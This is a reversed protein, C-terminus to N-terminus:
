SFFAKAMDSIQKQRAIRPDIKPITNIPASVIPEEVKKSSTDEVDNAFLNNMKKLTAESPDKYFVIKAFRNKDNKPGGTKKTSELTPINIPKSPIVAKLPEQVEKKSVDVAKAKDDIKNSEPLVEGPKTKSPEVKSPEDDVETIAQNIKVKKAIKSARAIELRQRLKEKEEESIAM